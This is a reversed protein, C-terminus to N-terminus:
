GQWRRTGKNRKRDDPRHRKAEAPLVTAVLKANPLWIVQLVRDVRLCPCLHTESGDPRKELLVSKGTLIHRKMSAVDSVMLELGYRELARDLVHKMGM